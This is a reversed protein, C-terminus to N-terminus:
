QRNMYALYQYFRWFILISGLGQLYIMIFPIALVQATARKHLLSFKTTYPQCLLPMTNKKKKLFFPAYVLFPTSNSPFDSPPLLSPFFLLFLFCPPLSSLPAIITPLSDSSLMLILSVTFLSFSLVLSLPSILSLTIHFLSFFTILFMNVWIRMQM